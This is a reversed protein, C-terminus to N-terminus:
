KSKVEESFPKIVNGYSIIKGVVTLRTGEGFEAPYNNSCVASKYTFFQCLDVIASHVELM